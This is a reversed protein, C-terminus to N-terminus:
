RASSDKWTNRLHAIGALQDERSQLYGDQGGLEAGHRTRVDYRVGTGAPELRVDFLDAVEQARVPETAVNLLHIGSRRAQEVVDWTRTVDFFQFSSQGSVQAWQADRGELLDFVLNKRLGPGFLGPLRVVVHDDFQSRVFAEFWARHRGYAQDGAFAAAHSEDVDVPPQYVDVTSVLVFRRVRMTALVGALRRVNEWDGEPDRNALYKAAPLGACVVEDAEIGRLDDLDPRHVALDFSGQLSLTSGVFGTSGVLVRV